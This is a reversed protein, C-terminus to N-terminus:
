GSSVALQFECLVMSKNFYQLVECSDFIRLFQCTSLNISLTFFLRLVIGLMSLIVSDVM